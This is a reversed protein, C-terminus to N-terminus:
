QIPPSDMEALLAARFYGVAWDHHRRGQLLSLVESASTLAGARSYFVVRMAQNFANWYHHDVTADWFRAADRPDREAILRAKLLCLGSLLPHVALGRDCWREAAELVAVADDATHRAHWYGEAMHLALYYNVPYRRFAAEALPEASAVPRDSLNAFKIRFYAVQASTMRVAGWLGAAGAVILVMGTVRSAINMRASM